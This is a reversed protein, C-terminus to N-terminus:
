RRERFHARSGIRDSATQTGVIGASIKAVFGETGRATRASLDDAEAGDKGGQAAVARRADDAVAANGAMEALRAQREEETM